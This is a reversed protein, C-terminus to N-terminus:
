EFPNKVEQPEKPAAVTDPLDKESELTQVIKDVVAKLARAKELGSKDLTLDVNGHISVRDTRNEIELDGVSLVQSENQFPKIKM